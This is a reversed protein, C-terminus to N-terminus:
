IVRWVNVPKGHGEPKQYRAFGAHRILGAKKLEVMVAGWVRPESPRPMRFQTYAAILDESTFQNQEKIWNKAFKFCLRYFNGAPEMVMDIAQEKEMNM